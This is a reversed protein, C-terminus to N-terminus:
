AAVLFDILLTMVNYDIITQWQMSASNDVDADQHMSEIILKLVVYLYGM